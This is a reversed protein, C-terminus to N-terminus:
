PAPPGATAGQMVEKMETKFSRLESTVMAELSGVSTELLDIRTNYKADLRDESKTVASDIMPALLSRATQVTLPQESYDAAGILQKQQARTAGRLVRGPFDIWHQTLRNGKSDCARTAADALAKNEAICWTYSAQVTAFPARAHQDMALKRISHYGSLGDPVGPSLSWHWHQLHAASDRNPTGPVAQPLLELHRCFTHWHHELDQTQGLTREVQTRAEDMAEVRSFRRQFFKILETLSGVVTPEGAVSGVPPITYRRREPAAAAIEAGGVGCDFVGAAIATEITTRTVDDCYASIAYAHQTINWAQMRTSTRFRKLIQECFSRADSLVADGKVFRLETAPQTMDDESSSDSDGLLEKLCSKSLVKSNACNLIM